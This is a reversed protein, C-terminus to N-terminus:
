IFLRKTNGPMKLHAKFYLFDAIVVACLIAAAFTNAIHTCFGVTFEIMGEGKSGHIASL